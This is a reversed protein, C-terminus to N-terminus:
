IRDLTSLGVRIHSSIPVENAESVRLLEKLKYLVENCTISFMDLLEKLKYSVDNCTKM